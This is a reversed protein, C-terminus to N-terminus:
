LDTYELSLRAQARKNLVAQIEPNEEGRPGIEFRAKELASSMQALNAEAIRLQTLTDDM